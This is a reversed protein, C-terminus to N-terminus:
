WKNEQKERWCRRTQLNQPTRSASFCSNCQNLHERSPHTWELISGCCFWPGFSVRGKGPPEVKLQTPSNKFTQFKTRTQTPGRTAVPGLSQGKLSFWTKKGQRGSKGSFYKLNALNSKLPANLSGEGAQCQSFVAMQPLKNVGNVEVVGAAVLPQPAGSVRPQLPMARGCLEM